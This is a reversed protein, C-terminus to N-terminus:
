NENALSTSPIIIDEKNTVKAFPEVNIRNLPLNNGILYKIIQVIADNKQPEMKISEVLKFSLLINQVSLLSYHYEKMQVVTKIYLYFFLASIFEIIIGSASAVYSLPQVHNNTNFGVILAIVILTFGIIGMMVSAVFSKNAHDKVQIYYTSLNEVNIRVLKDFYEEEQVDVTQTSKLEPDLDPYLQRRINYREVYEEYRIAVSRYRFYFLIIFLIGYLVFFPIVLNITAYSISTRFFTQLIYKVTTQNIYFVLPLLGPLISLIFMRYTYEKRRRLQDFETHNARDQLQRKRRTKKM